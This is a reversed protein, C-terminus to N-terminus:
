MAPQLVAFAVGQPDQLLAFRGINPIDTGPRSVKGGLKEVTIYASWHPPVGAKAEAAQQSFLACVDKGNLLARSCVGADGMSDDAYTWGLLGSYFKKAGDPDTTALDAWSFMGPTHKTIETM